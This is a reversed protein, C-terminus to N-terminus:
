HQKLMEQVICAAVKSQSPFMFDKDIVRRAVVTCADHGTSHVATVQFYNPFVM